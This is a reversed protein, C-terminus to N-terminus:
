LVPLDFKRGEKLNPEITEKKFVENYANYDQM